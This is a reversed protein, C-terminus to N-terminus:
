TSDGHCTIGWRLACRQPYRDRLPDFDNNLKAQAGISLFSAITALIEDPV